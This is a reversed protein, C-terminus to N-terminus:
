HDSRIFIAPMELSSSATYGLTFISFLPLTGSGGDCSPIPPQSLDVKCNCVMLANEFHIITPLVRLQESLDRAVVVVQLIKYQLILISTLETPVYLIGIGTINWHDNKLLYLGPFLVFLEITIFPYFYMISVQLTDYESSASEVSQLVCRFNTRHLWQFWIESVSNPSYKNRYWLSSAM